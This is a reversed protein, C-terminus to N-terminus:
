EDIAELDSILEYYMQECTFGMDNYTEMCGHIFGKDESNMSSEKILEETDEYWDDSKFDTRKLKTSLKM